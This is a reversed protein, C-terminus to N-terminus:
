PRWKDPRQGSAGEAVVKNSDASNGVKWEVVFGNEIEAESRYHIRKGEDKKKKKKKKIMIKEQKNKRTGM